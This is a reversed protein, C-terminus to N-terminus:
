ARAYHEALPGNSDGVDDWSRDAFYRDLVDLIIHWGVAFDTAPERPLEAHTLLLRTGVAVPEM